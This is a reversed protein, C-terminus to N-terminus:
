SGCNIFRQIFLAIFISRRNTFCGEKVKEILTTANSQAILPLLIETDSTTQFLVGQNELKRKLSFYNTLNGNHVVALKGFKGTAQFPQVNTYSNGGTTSYRVHGISFKGKLFAFAATDFSESVLKRKRIKYVDEGDASAIGAAEQGRHQLGYLGLYTLNSAEPQNAVGFIGCM